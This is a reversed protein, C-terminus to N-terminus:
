EQVPFQFTRGADGPDVALLGIYEWHFLEPEAASMGVEEQHTNRWM